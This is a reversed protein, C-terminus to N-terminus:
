EDKFEERLRKLNKIATDVRYPDVHTEDLYVFFSKELRMIEEGLITLVDRRMNEIRGWLVYEKFNMFNEGIWNLDEIYM